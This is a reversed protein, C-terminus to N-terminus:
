RFVEARDGLPERVRPDPGYSNEYDNGPTLMMILFFIWGFLPFWSLLLFWGTKDHDHLRRVSLSLLALLAALTYLGLFVGVVASFAGEGEREVKIGLAAAILGLVIAAAFLLLYFTLIFLWYERRTSRGKYDFIHTWPRTLINM